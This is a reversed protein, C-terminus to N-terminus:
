SGTYTVPTIRIEDGEKIVKVKDASVLQSIEEPLTKTDLVMETVACRREGATYGLFPRM